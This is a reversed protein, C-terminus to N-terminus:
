SRHEISNLDSVSNNILDNAYQPYQHFASSKPNALTLVKYGEPSSLGRKSLNEMFQSLIEDSPLDIHQEQKLGLTMTKVLDYPFVLSGLLDADKLLASLHDKSADVSLVHFSTNKIMALVQRWARGQGTQGFLRRGAIMASRVEEDYPKAAMARGRHDLDHVMAALLLTFQDDKSLRHQRPMLSALVAAFVMVTINHWDHHYGNKHPDRGAAWFLPRISRQYQRPKMVGAWAFVDQPCAKGYPKLAAGLVPLFRGLHKIVYQQRPITKGNCYLPAMADVTKKLRLCWVLHIAM